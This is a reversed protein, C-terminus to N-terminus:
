AGGGFVAEITARDHITGCDKCEYEDNGVTVFGTHPAVDSCPLADHDAELTQQIIHYADEKVQWQKVTRYVPTDDEREDYQLKQRGVQEVIEKEDLTQIRLSEALDDVVFTEDPAPLKALRTINNRIWARSLSRSATHTTAPM